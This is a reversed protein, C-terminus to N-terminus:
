PAPPVFGPQLPVCIFLDSFHVPPFHEDSELMERIWRRSFFEKQKLGRSWLVYGRKTRRYALPGGTFLDPPVRPLLEPVLAQLQQPYEGHRAQYVALALATEALLFRQRTYLERCKDWLSWKLVVFAAPRVVWETRAARNLWAMAQELSGPSRLLERQYRDCRRLLAAVDKEHRLLKVFQDVYHNARKCAYNYDLTAYDPSEPQLPAPVDGFLFWMHLEDHDGRSAKQLVRLLAFRLPRNATRAASVGPPLARWQGLFKETTPGDLRCNELLVKVARFAMEHLASADEQSNAFYGQAALRGLRQLTLVDEWADEVRRQGSYLTSRVVLDKAILSFCMRSTPNDLHWYKDRPPVYPLFFRERLSARRVLALAPANEELLRAIEPEEEPPWAARSLQILYLQIEQQSTMAALEKEFREPLSLFLPTGEPPPKMGLRRYEPASLIKPGLLEVLPVAANNEPTVGQSTLCHLCEAYDPLGQPTLPRTIVTTEQSIVLQPAFWPSVSYFRAAPIGVAVLVVGGAVAWWPSFTRRAPVPVVQTKSAVM